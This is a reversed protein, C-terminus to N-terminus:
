RVLAVWLPLAVATLVTTIFVAAVAFNADMKYHRTLVSSMVATPMASLMVGVTLMDGRVGVLRLFLWMVMPMVVLKLGTVAALPLFVDGRGASRTDASGSAPEPKRFASPRLAAGMALLILPVTGQGLYVLCQNVIGCVEHAPVSERLADPWPIVRIAGGIVMSLFIPSRFFAAADRRATGNDGPSDSGNTGGFAGGILPASMYLPVSMGIQDVLVAVTFLPPFLALTIPYGLFGTNGFGASLMLAGVQTRPLRLSRGVAYAATVTALEAVTVALPLWLTAPPVAPASALSRIVLAPLTVNVVLANLVPINETKLLGFRRLAAGLLMLFFLPALARLTADFIPM